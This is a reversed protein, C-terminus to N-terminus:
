DDFFANPGGFAEFGTFTSGTEEPEEVPAPEAERKQPGGEEARRQVRNRGPYRGDHPAIGRRPRDMRGRGAAGASECLFWGPAEDEPHPRLPHWLSQGAPQDVPPQGQRQPRLVKHGIRFRVADGKESFKLSPANEYGQSIVAGTIFTKIM